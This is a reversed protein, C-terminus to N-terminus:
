SPMIMHGPQRHRPCCVATEHSIKAEASASGMGGASMASFTRQQMHLHCWSSRSGRKSQWWSMDLYWLGRNAATTYPHARDRCGWGAQVLLLVQAHQGATMLERCALM